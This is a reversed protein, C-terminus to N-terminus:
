NRKRSDQINVTRSTTRPFTSLRTTEEHKDSSVTANGGFVIFRYKKLEERAKERRGGEIAVGIYMRLRVNWRASGRETRLRRLWGVAMDAPSRGFAVAPPCAVVANVVVRTADRRFESRGATPPTPM